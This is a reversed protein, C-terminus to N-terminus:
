EADLDQLTARATCLILTRLQPVFQEPPMCDRSTLWRELACIIADNFFDIYMPPVNPSCLLGSLRQRM